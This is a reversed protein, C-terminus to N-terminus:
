TTPARPDLLRRRATELLELQRSLQLKGSSKPPTLARALEREGLGTVHALMRAQEFLSQAAFNHLRARATEQLARLAAAHLATGGHQHLFQATGLVQETMSRRQLGMPKVVAGFRVSGRWVALAIALLGALLAPWANQWLWQPLPNRAEEAVFWIDRGARLQLADATLLANDEQLMHTNDLADWPGVVTVSGRGLAVRLVEVGDTSKVAWLITSSNATMAPGVLPACIRYSSQIPLGSAETVRSTTLDHCAAKGPKRKASDDEIFVLNELSPLDMAWKPIVLQGGNRVWNHLRKTRQPLLDWDRSTLVLTAQPPPMATLGEYRAVKAGLGRALAQTAYLPNKAAEARPPTTVEADVWETVTSLWVVGAVVLLLALIRLLNARIM